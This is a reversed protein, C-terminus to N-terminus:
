TTTKYQRKGFIGTGIRILTAGEEIAVGYDGSMGMSLIKMSVNDLNKERIDIFIERMKRFIPRNEESDVVYPAITMLGVIKVNPFKAIEEILVDVANTDIGFKSEEMAVNIQVLVEIVRDVKAGQKNIEKALKVSDVSHILTVKDAIYKVKNSQLHGIMHWRARNGLAEYKDRIEQVKNEGLEIEGASIAEELLPLPKTKSVAVLTIEDTSRGAIECHHAINEHVKKINEVINEM